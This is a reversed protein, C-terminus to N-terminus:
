HKTTTSSITRNKETRNQETRNRDRNRDQGLEQEISDQETINKENKRTSSTLFCEYIVSMYLMDKGIPGMRKCNVFSQKSEEPLPVKILIVQFRVKSVESVSRFVEHSLVWIM